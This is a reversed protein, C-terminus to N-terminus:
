GPTGEYTDYVALINHIYNQVRKPVCTVIFIFLYLIYNILTIIPLYRYLISDGSRRLQVVVKSNKM